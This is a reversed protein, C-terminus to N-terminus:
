KTKVKYNTIILEPARKCKGESNRSISYQIEFEKIKAWSYLERIEPCDDYTLLFKHETNKLLRALKEHDLNHLEGGRGYLKKATVYPPDLFLFVDDGPEKIVKSFDKCTIRVGRLVDPLPALRDISSETFRNKAAHKSFGGALITGSYTIRNFFYFMRACEEPCTPPNDRMELYLKKIDKTKLSRRMERLEQMLYNCVEEQQVARWFYILDKFKDNLWFSNAFGNHYGKFFLSAGGCFPERFQSASKPFHSFIYSAARQKGGPMRLPSRVETM